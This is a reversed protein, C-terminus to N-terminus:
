VRYIYTHFTDKIEDLITMKM